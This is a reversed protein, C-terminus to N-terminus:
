DNRSLTNLLENLAQMTETEKQMANRFDRIAEQLDIQEEPEFTDVYRPINLNFENEEIEEMDVVAFYRKRLEPNDFMEDLEDVVDAIAQQQKHAKEEAARIKADRDAVLKDLANRSTELAKLEGKTPAKHQSEKEQIAQQAKDFKERRLAIDDSTEKEIESLTYNLDQRITMEM